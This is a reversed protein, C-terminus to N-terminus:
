RRRNPLLLSGHGHADDVAQLATLCRRAGLAAVEVVDLAAQVLGHEIPDVDPRAARGIALLDAVAQALEDLVQDLFLAQVEARDLAVDTTLPMRSSIVPRPGRSAM